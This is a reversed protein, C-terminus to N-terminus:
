EPPAVVHPYKQQLQVYAMNSFRNTPRRRQWRRLAAIEKERQRKKMVEDQEIQEQNEVEQQAWSRISTGQTYSLLQHERLCFLM